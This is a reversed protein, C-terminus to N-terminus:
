GSVKVKWIGRDSNYIDPKYIVFFDGRTAGIEWAVKGTAKEGKGLQGSGLQETTSLYTPEIVAGDPTQLKWDFLTYTQDTADRNVVTVEALLYGAQEFESVEPVFGANELTTTFGSLEVAEGVAATKDREDTAPNDADVTVPANIEKDLDDIENAARNGLFAIAAVAVIVILAFLGFVIMAAILCGKGQKNPAPPPPPQGSQAQPPYWNGDSAKWWGPGPPVDSM